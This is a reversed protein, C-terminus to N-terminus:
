VTHLVGSLLPQDKETDRGPSLPGHGPSTPCERQSRIFPTPDHLQSQQHVGGGSFPLPAPVELLEETVELRTPQIEVAPKGLTGPVEGFESPLKREASPPFIDGDDAAAVPAHVLDDVPQVFKGGREPYQGAAGAVVDGAIEPNGPAYGFRTIDNEVAPNAAEVEHLRAQVEEHPAYTDLIESLRAQTAQFHSETHWLTDDADFAITAIRKM